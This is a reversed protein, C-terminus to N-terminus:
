AAESALCWGDEDGTLMWLPISVTSGCECNGLVLPCEGDDMIGVRTTGAAFAAGSATLDSHDACVGSATRPRTM